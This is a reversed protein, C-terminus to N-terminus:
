KPRYIKCDYNNSFYSQNISAVMNWTRVVMKKHEHELGHLVKNGM